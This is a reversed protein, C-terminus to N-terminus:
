IWGQRQKLLRLSLGAPLGRSGHRLAQDIATWNEGPADQVEGSKIQPWRGTRDHHARMWALIQELRLPPKGRGGEAGIRKNLLKSLSTGSPLGRLGRRLANDIGRWSEGPAEAVMGTQATPWRGTRDFHAKAWVLIRKVSLPPKHRRRRQGHEESAM